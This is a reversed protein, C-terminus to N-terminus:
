REKPEQLVLGSEPLSEVIEHGTVSLRTRTPHSIVRHNFSKSALVEISLACEKHINSPTQTMVNSLEVGLM